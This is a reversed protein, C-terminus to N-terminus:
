EEDYPEMTVTWDSTSGSFLPGQLVTTYGRRLSIKPLKTSPIPKGDATKLDAKLQIGNLGDQPCLMYRPPICMFRPGNSAIYADVELEEDGDANYKNGKVEVSKVRPLGKIYGARYYKGQEYNIYYSDTIYIEVSSTLSNFELQQKPMLYPTSEIFKESYMIDSEIAWMDRTVTKKTPDFHIQPNISYYEGDYFEDEYGKSLGVLFLLNHKGHRLEIDVDRSYRREITITDQMVIKGGSYDFLYTTGEPLRFTIPTTEESLIEDVDDDESSCAAFSFLTVLALALTAWSSAFHFHKTKM